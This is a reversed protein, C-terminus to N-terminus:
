FARQGGRMFCVNPFRRWHRRGYPLTSKILWLDVVRDAKIVNEKWVHVFLSARPRVSPASQSPPHFGRKDAFFSAPVVRASTGPAALLYFHTTFMEFPFIQRAFILGRPFFGCSARRKARKIVLQIDNTLDVRISTGGFYLSANRFAMHGTNYMLWSSTPLLAERHAVLRTLYLATM